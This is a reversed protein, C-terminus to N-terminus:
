KGVARVVKEAQNFKVSSKTRLANTKRPTFRIGGRLSNRADLPADGHLNPRQPRNLIKKVPFPIALQKLVTRETLVMSAFRACADASVWDDVMQRIQKRLNSAEALKRLQYSQLDERPMRLMQSLPLEIPEDFPM